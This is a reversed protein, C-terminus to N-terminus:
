IDRRREAQASRLKGARRIQLHNFALVRLRLREMQAQFRDSDAKEKDRRIRKAERIEAVAAHWSTKWAAVWALYSERDTFTLAPHVTAEGDDLRSHRSLNFIKENM